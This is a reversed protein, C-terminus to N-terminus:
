RWTVTRSFLWDYISRIVWLPAVYGYVVIFYPINHFNKHTIRSIYRGLLFGAIIATYIFLSMLTTAKTDFYFLDWTGFTFGEWGVLMIKHISAITAVTVKYISYSFVFVLLVYAFVGAPLTFLGFDRYKKNVFMHRYDVMNRIFGYSWRLRQKFLKKITDPGKTRVIAEHCHDIKMGHSHLRMTMEGDELLYAHKYGGVKDFVGRRFIAFAGPVVLVAGILGLMKKTFSFTQYEIEQAKQVFTKPNGILVTGGLAMLEHDKVFYPIAKHLAQPEITTDADFSVVLDTKVFPLAYNLATYKGGNEKRLLTVQPHGEYVKLVQPTNDTSGDDIIIIHLKEKPYDLGLISEVTGLVTAGENWCPLLFSVSLKETDTLSITPIKPSIKQRHEFFVLLFFVQIYIAVFMIVEYVLEFTTIM